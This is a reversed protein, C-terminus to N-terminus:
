YLKRLGKIDGLGLSRPGLSCLPLLEAMTLAGHDQGVHGLGFVHGMEHTLLGQVDLRNKCSAAGPKFTWDRDPNMRIDSEALKDHGDEVFYWACSDGYREIPGFDVVSTGDPSQCVGDQFNAVTETTGKYSDKAGLKSRLDCDNQAKVISKVALLAAKKVKDAGLAAPVSGENLFWGYAKKAKYGVPNNSGDKCPGNAALWARRSPTVEEDGVFRLTVVGELDVEIAFEQVGAESHSQTYVGEGEGPVVAGVGNDLLTAGVLDCVEPPIVVPLTEAEIPVSADCPLPPIDVQASGVGVSLVTVLAALAIGTLRM